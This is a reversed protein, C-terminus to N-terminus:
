DGGGCGGCGSCGSDGGGGDADSSNGDHHADDHHHADEGGGGCGSGAGGGDNRAYNRNIQSTSVSYTIVGIFLVALLVFFVAIGSAQVFGLAGFAAMAVGVQTEFRGSPKRVLWYHDLSVRQFNIESFRKQNNLWIDAPPNVGFQQFYLQQVDTYYDDFKAREKSGGKTPNHHIEQGLTNKCFDIWYSKTFTLHLHWAQDVADSPTVGKKSICCLFIFKRYEDIVRQTHAASWGNERALRKSFTFVGDAEDFQFALIKNWLVQEEATM